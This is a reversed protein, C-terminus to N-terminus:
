NGELRSIGLRVMEAAQQIRCDIYTRLIEDLEPTRIPKSLHGDMGAALSKDSDRQMAHAILTFVASRRLKDKETERLAMTAELLAAPDDLTHGSSGHFILVM